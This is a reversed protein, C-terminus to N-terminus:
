RDQARYNFAGREVVVAETLPQTEILATRQVAVVRDHDLWVDGLVLFQRKAAPGTGTAWFITFDELM